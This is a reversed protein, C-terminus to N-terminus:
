WEAWSGDRHKWTPAHWNHPSRAARRVAEEDIAVGLGPEDTRRFGGDVMVFPNPDLVYDFHSSRGNYHLGMSQEQILFNPTALDVQICAALALPGLPCHPAFSLGYMEALAGIRRCESIGGAHSLDPQVVAIGTAVVDRFDWRSYLREGVAIPISTSRAVMALRESLEPVVPEEVFLPFLPELLPLVRRAMAPSFRGHFDLAIDVGLGAADRVIAMRDVVECTRTASDIALLESSANMKVATLGRELQQRLGEVLEVPRDGGIWGYARVSDRVPGGLLAYVPVGLAKATLDWLAQDIGAIASSLVAGGRYFGGKTMVQWLREIHTPDQGILLDALDDIAAAVTAARGELIPEGWGVNGDDTEVRVFQWRPPVQFTEIRAIRM